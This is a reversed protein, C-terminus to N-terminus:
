FQSQPALTHLEYYKQRHTTIIVPDRIARHFM